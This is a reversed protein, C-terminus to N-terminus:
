FEIPNLLFYTEIHWDLELNDLETELENKYPNGFHSKWLEELFNM